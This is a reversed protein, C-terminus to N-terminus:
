KLKELIKWTEKDFKSFAFWKKGLDKLSAGFHYMEKEDIILFRDHSHKLEKIEIHPYQTNYKKLDLSLQPSIDRTYITVKVNTKRKTFLLLVSDDIYNDLLIISYDASRILDSVFTYADFIQGDFFIGKNPKLNKDELADFIQNFRQEYEIHKKEISDLRKFLLANTSLFRRMHVFANMIQISIKIAKESKLVGSLMAVGQETFAYPLYKKHTGRRNQNPTVIQSRLNELTVIQSRLSKYEEKTLQFMFSEPFREQNRKVAQNLVKTEVEYLEALDTDLMVQTDRLTYIKSKINDSNIIELDKKM